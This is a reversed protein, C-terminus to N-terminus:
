GTPLYTRQRSGTLLTLSESITIQQVRILAFVPQRDNRPNNLLKSVLCATMEEAGYPVLLPELTKAEQVALGLWAANDKV